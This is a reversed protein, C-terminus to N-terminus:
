SPTAAPVALPGFAGAPGRIRRAHGRHAQAQRGPRPHRLAAVPSRHRGGLGAPQGRVAPATAWSSSSTTRTPRAAGTTSCSWAGCNPEAQVLLHGYSAARRGPRNRHRRHAPVRRGGRAGHDRDGRRLRRVGAREGPGRPYLHPGCIAPGNPSFTKVEPAPDVEVTVKATPGAPSDAHLGRLRRLPTFRWEEERGTPVAFDAPDASRREHLRTVPATEVAGQLGASM